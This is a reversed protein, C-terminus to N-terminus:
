GNDHQARIIGTYGREHAHRRGSYDPINVTIKLGTIRGQSIMIERAFLM